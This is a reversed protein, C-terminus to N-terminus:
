REVEKKIEDLSLKNCVDYLDMDLPISWRLSMPDTAQSQQSGNYKVFIFRENWSSIIGFERESGRFDFVVERGRDNETLKSIDIM